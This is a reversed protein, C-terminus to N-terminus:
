EGSGLIKPIDLDIILSTMLSTDTSVIGPAPILNQYNVLYRIGISLKNSMAVELASEFFVYFKERNKLSLYYELRNKWTVNSRITWEDHIGNKLSAFEQTRAEKVTSQERYYGISCLGKLTHKEMKLIDYGIGPGISFRYEYGAFRDSVYKTGLLGFLRGSLVREVRFESTFINANEKKDDESRLFTSQFFYRNGLGKGQVDLKSSITETRTNGATKVYSLELRSEFKKDQSHVGRLFVMILLLCTKTNKM